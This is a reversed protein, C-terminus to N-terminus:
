RRLLAPSGPRLMDSLRASYGTHWTASSQPGRGAQERQLQRELASLAAAEEERGPGQEADSTSCCLWATYAQRLALLNKKGFLIRDWGTTRSGSVCCLWAAQAHDLRGWCLPCASNCLLVM